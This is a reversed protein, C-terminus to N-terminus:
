TIMKKLLFESVHCIFRYDKMYTILIITRILFFNVALLKKHNIIKIETTIVIHEEKGIHFDSPLVPGKLKSLLREDM